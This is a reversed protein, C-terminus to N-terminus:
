NLQTAPSIPDYDMPLMEAVRNKGWVGYYIVSYPNMIIGNSNFLAEPANFKILTNETNNSNYLYKQEVIHYHHSKNYAVYLGYKTTSLAFQGPNNNPKIIDKKSLPSPLLKYLIKPLRSKKDWYSLSDQDYHGQKKRGKYYAIRADIVSDSQREPNSYIAYELVRFGEETLRDNLTARFFHM